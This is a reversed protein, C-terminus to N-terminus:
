SKMVGRENRAEFRIHFPYFVSNTYGHLGLSKLVDILRTRRIERNGHLCQINNGQNLQLLENEKLVFAMQRFLFTMIINFNRQKFKKLNLNENKLHLLSRRERDSM